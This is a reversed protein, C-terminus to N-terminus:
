RPQQSLRLIVDFCIKALKKEDQVMLIQGIQLLGDKAAGSLQGSQTLGSKELAREAVKVIERKDNREELITLLGAGCDLIDEPPGHMEYLLM